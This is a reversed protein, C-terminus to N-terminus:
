EVVSGDEQVTLGQALGIEASVPLAMVINRCCEDMQLREHLKQLIAKTCRKEVVMVLLERGPEIARGFLADAESGSESRSHLITGGAAGAERSWEVVKDVINIHLSALILDHRAFRIGEDPVAFPDTKPEVDANKDDLQEAFRFVAKLGRSDVIPILCAIGHGPREMRMKHRVAQLMAQAREARVHSLVIEKEDLELGLYELIESRATGRGRLIVSGLAQHARCIRAFQEGKGKSVFGILMYKDGTQGGERMLAGASPSSQRNDKSNMM